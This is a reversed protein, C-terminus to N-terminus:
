KPPLCVLVMLRESPQSTGLVPQLAKQDITGPQIRTVRLQGGLKDQLTTLIGTQALWDPRGPQPLAHVLDLQPGSIDPSQDALKSLLQLMPAVGTGSSIQM